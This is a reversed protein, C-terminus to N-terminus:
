KTENEIIYKAQAEIVAQDVERLQEVIELSIFIDMKLSLKIANRCSIFSNFVDDKKDNINAFRILVQVPFSDKRILDFTYKKNKM